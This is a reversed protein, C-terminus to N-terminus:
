GGCNQRLFEELKEIARRTNAIEAMHGPDQDRFWKRNFAERLALCKKLRVLNARADICADGTPTIPTKCIRAYEKRERAQEARDVLGGRAFDASHHTKVRGSDGM